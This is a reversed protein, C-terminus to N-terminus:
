RMIAALNLKSTTFTKKVQVEHINTRKLNEKIEKLKKIKDMTYPVKVIREESVKFGIKHNTEKATM